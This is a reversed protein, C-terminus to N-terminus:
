YELEDALDEGVALEDYQTERAKYLVVLTVRRNRHDLPDDPIMLFKDAFGRVARVQGQYLGSVEMLRRAANARDASLEWNTYDGDGGFAADTHGEVIIHNSLKGIEQAITMLIVASKQLLKASGAEFFAPSDRSENLIIRLGERTMQFMINGRLRHFAEQQELEDLIKRAALLLEDKEERTIEVSREAPNTSIGMTPDDAPVISQSGKLAGSSGEIKYKGPDRFYGAVAQRVEDKQGVMWMVLFFAMMATMFDAFAVKWAGGHHGGHGHKKKKIIVPQESHGDM